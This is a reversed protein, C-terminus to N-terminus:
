KVWSRQKKNYEIQGEIEQIKKRYIAIKERKTEESYFPYEEVEKIKTEIKVINAKENVEFDMVLNLHMRISVNRQFRGQTVFNERRITEHKIHKNAM